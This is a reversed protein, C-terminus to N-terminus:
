VASFGLTDCWLTGYIEDTLKVEASLTWTFNIGEPVWFESTFVENSKPLMVTEKWYIYNGTGYRITVVESPGVSFTGVGLGISLTTGFGMQPKWLHSDAEPNLVCANLIVHNFERGICHIKIELDYFDRTPMADKVQYVYAVAMFAGNVSMQEYYRVLVRDPTFIDANAPVIAVCLLMLLGLPIMRKLWNISIGGRTYILYTIVIIELPFVLRLPIIYFVVISIMSFIMTADLWRKKMTLLGAGMIFLLGGDLAGVAGMLVQLKSPLYALGIIRSLMLITGFAFVWHLAVILKVGLPIKRKSELMM